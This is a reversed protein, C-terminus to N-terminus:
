TQLTAVTASKKSPHKIWVSAFGLWFLSVARGEAANEKKGGCAHADCQGWMQVQLSLLPELQRLHASTTKFYGEHHVFM